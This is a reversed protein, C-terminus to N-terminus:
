SGVAIRTATWLVTALTTISVAAHIGGVWQRAGLREVDGKTALDGQGNRVVSAIVEAHDRDIGARELDCAGALTDFAQTVDVRAITFVWGACVRAPRYRPLISPDPAAAAESHVAGMGLGFQGPHVM